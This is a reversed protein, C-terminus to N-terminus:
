GEEDEKEVTARWDSPSWGTAEEGRLHEDLVIPPLLRAEGRARGQENKKAVGSLNLETM